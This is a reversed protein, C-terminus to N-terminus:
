SCKYCTMLSVYPPCLVETCETENITPTIPKTDIALITNNSLKGYTRMQLLRSPYININQFLEPHPIQFLCYIILTLLILALLTMNFIPIFFFHFFFLISVIAMDCLMIDWFFFDVLGSLPSNSKSLILISSKVGSFM